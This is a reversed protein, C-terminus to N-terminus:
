RPATRVASYKAGARPPAILMSVPPMEILREAVVGVGEPRPQHERTGLAVLDARTREVLARLATAPDGTLITPHIRVARTPHLMSVLQRLASRVGATEAETTVTGVYALHITATPAVLRRVLRVARLSAPSFDMAVVITQPLKRLSPHVVLVPTPTNAIVRRATDNEIGDPKTSDETAHVGLVILEAHTRSAEDLIADAADGLEVDLPFVTPLGGLASVTAELEDRRRALVDNGDIPANAASPLEFVHVVTPVASCQEALTRTVAIAAEAAGDRDIALLLPFAGDPLAGREWDEQAFNTASLTDLGSGNENIVAM